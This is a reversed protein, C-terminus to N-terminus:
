RKSKVRKKHPKPQRPLTPTVPMERPPTRPARLSAQKELAEQVIQNSIEKGESSKAAQSYPMGRM